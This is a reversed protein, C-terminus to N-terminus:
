VVGEAFLYFYKAVPKKGLQMLFYESSVIIASKNTSRFLV